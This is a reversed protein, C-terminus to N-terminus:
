MREVTIPIFLFTFPYLLINRINWYYKGNVCNASYLSVLWLNKYVHIKRHYKLRKEFVYESVRIIKMECGQRRQVGHRPPTKISPEDEYRKGFGIFGQM